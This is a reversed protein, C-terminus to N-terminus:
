DSKNSDNWFYFRLVAEIVGVKNIKPTGINFLNIDQKELYSKVSSFLFEKSIQNKTSNFYFKIKVQGYDSYITMEKDQFLVQKKTDRIEAIINGFARKIENEKKDKIFAYFVFKSVVCTVVLIM